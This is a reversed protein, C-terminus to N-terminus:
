FMRISFRSGNVGFAVDTRPSFRQGERLGRKVGNPLFLQSPPHRIIPEATKRRSCPGTLTGDHLAPALLFPHLTRVILMAYNRVIESASQIRWTRQRYRNQKGCHGLSVPGAAKVVKSILFRLALYQALIVCYTSPRPEPKTVLTGPGM